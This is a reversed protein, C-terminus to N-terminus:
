SFIDEATLPEPETSPSDFLDAISETADRSGRRPQRPAGIKDALLFGITPPGKHAHDWVFWAFAIMGSAGKALPDGNRNMLIRNSFVLVQSLPTGLFMKRRDIGELWALRCLMAVKNTARDLAHLAFEEAHKFPPNTVINPVRSNWDLLFDQNTEGYSRDILDSSRVEYGAEILVKSIAGDGCAPEWIAGDFKVVDLLARTAEPPTPYFDDRQRNKKDSAIGLVFVKASRKSSINAQKSM